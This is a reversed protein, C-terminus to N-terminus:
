FWSGSEYQFIIFNITPYSATSQPFHNHFGNSCDFLENSYLVDKYTSVADEMLLVVAAFFIKRTDWRAAGECQTYILTSLGYPLFDIFDASIQLLFCIISM